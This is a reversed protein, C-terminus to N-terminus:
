RVWIGSSSSTPAAAADEQGGRGAAGSQGPTVASTSRAVAMINKLGVSAKVAHSGPPCSVVDVGYMNTGYVRGTQGGDFLLLSARPGAAIHAVDTVQSLNAPAQGFTNDGFAAVTGDSYLILSHNGGAAVEVAVVPESNAAGSIQASSNTSSNAATNPIDLQGHTNCGWGVVSGNSLLALAHREGASM